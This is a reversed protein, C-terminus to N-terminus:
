ERACLVFAGLSFFLGCHLSLSENDALATGCVTWLLVACVGQTLSRIDSCSSLSEKLLYCCSVNAFPVCGTLSSAPQTASERQFVALYM